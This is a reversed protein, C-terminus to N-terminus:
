TLLCPPSPRAPAAGVAHGQGAPRWGPSPSARETSQRQKRAPPACSHQSRFLIFLICTLVRGPFFFFICSQQLPTSHHKLTNAPLCATVSAEPQVPSTRTSLSGRIQSQGQAPGESLASVSGLALPALGAGEDEEAGSHCCLGPSCQSPTFRRVEPDARGRSPHAGAQSLPGGPPRPSHEWGLLWALTGSAAGAVQACGPSHCKKTSRTGVLVDKTNYGLDPFGWHSLRCLCM